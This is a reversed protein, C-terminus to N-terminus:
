RPQEYTILKNRLEKLKIDWFNAWRTNFEIDQKNGYTVKISYLQFQTMASKYEQLLDVYQKDLNNM